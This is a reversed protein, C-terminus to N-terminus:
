IGYLGFFSVSAPRISVMESKFYKTKALFFSEAIFGVGGVWNFQRRVWFNEIGLELFRFFFNRGCGWGWFNNNREAM